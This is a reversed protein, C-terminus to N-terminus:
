SDPERFSIKRVVGDDGVMVLELGAWFHGGNGRRVNGPSVWCIRRSKADIVWECDADIKYSPMARPESLPVAKGKTITHSHSGSPSPVVRTRDPSLGSLPPDEDAAEAWGPLPTGSRWAKIVASVGFEAVPGRSFSASAPNTFQSRLSTIDDYPSLEQLTRLDLITLRQDPQLLSIIHKGGLPYVHSSRASNRDGRVKLVDLSFIQISDETQAVLNRNLSVAVSTAADLPPPKGVSDQSQTDLSLVGRPPTICAIVTGAVMPASLEEGLRTLSWRELHEPALRKEKKSPTVRLFNSNWPIREGSEVVGVLYEDRGLPSRILGWTRGSTPFTGLSKGTDIDHDYVIGQTAVVLKRPSFWLIAVVPRDVGFRKREKTHTNWFTVSGDFSGCAIHDGTTSVAIDTIESQVTFTHTLGGTQVDWMTVSRSHAFFLTYDDPSGQVKTVPEPIRLSQRLAFTVADYVNTIEECAAVIRQGSTAICM